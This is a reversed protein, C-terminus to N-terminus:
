LIATNTIFQDGQMVVGYLNDTPYNLHVNHKIPWQELRTLAAKSTKYEGIVFRMVVNGNHKVTIYAKYMTHVGRARTGHACGALPNYVLFTYQQLAQRKYQQQQM